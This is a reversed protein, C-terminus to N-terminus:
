GLGLGLGLRLGLGLALRLGLRLGLGLGSKLWVKMRVKVSVKDRVRVGVRVKVSIRGRVRVRVKDRIEFRVGFWVRVRVKVKVWVMKITFSLASKAFSYILYVLKLTLVLWSDIINNGFAETYHQVENTVFSWGLWYMVNCIRNDCTVHRLWRKFWLTEVLSRHICLGLNIKRM